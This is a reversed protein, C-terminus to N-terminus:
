RQSRFGTTRLSNQRHTEPARSRVTHEVQTQSGERLVVATLPVWATTARVLGKKKTSTYYEM